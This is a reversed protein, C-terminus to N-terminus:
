IIIKKKKLNLPPPLLTRRKFGFDYSTGVLEPFVFQIEFKYAEYQYDNTMNWEFAIKESSDAHQTRGM